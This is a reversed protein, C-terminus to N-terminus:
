KPNFFYIFGSFSLKLISPIHSDSFRWSFSLNTESMSREHDSIQLASLLIQYFLPQNLFNYHWNPFLLLKQLTELLLPLKTLLQEIEVVPIKSLEPLIIVIIITIHWCFLIEIYQVFTQSLWLKQTMNVDIKWLLEVKKISFLLKKSCLNKKSVHFWLSIFNELLKALTKPLQIPQFDQFEFRSSVKANLFQFQKGPM